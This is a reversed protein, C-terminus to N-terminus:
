GIVFLERIHKGNFTEFDSILRDNGLLKSEYKEKKFIADWNWLTEVYRTYEMYSTM